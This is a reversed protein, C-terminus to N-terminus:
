FLVDLYRLKTGLINIIRRTAFPSHTPSVVSYDQTVFILNKLYNKKVNRQM